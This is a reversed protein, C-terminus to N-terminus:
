IALFAARRLRGLLRFYDRYALPFGSSHIILTTFPNPPSKKSQPLPSVKEERESVCESEIPLAKGASRVRMRCTKSSRWRFFRNRWRVFTFSATTIHLTVATAHLPWGHSKQPDATAPILSKAGVTDTM